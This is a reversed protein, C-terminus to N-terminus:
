GQATRVDIFAEQRLNRLYRSALRELQESRLREIVAERDEASAGSRSCVMVVATTGEATRLPESVVGIPQVLAATALPEDLSQVDIDSQSRARLGATEATLGELEACSAAEARAAAAFDELDADDATAEVRLLSVRLAGGGSRQAVRRFLYVGQQARVPQSVGGDPLTAVINRVEAPLAGAALWGLDGERAASPATSFERALAGFDAGSLAADRLRQADRIVEQIQAEQYVPLFIEALRYETEGSGAQRLRQAVQVDSVVVRPGLQQRVSFVWAFQSRIQRRLTEERVGAQRLIDLLRDVSLNASEAVRTIQGDVEAEDVTIDLRRAEQLQLQEDILARIMQPRLRAANAETMPQGSFLLALRLRQELDSDTVVGDNVVAVISQALARGGPGWSLVAVALLALAPLINRARM